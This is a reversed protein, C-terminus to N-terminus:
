ERRKFDRGLRNRAVISDSYLPRSSSSSSHNDVEMLDRSYALSGCILDDRTPIRFARPGSPPTIIQSPAAAAPAQHNGGIKPYVKLLRGDATKDNFTDIVREGGERSAFVMEAVLVPSMRTIKCSTMEGGVPTMASEIDAATTGPAFNQGIVYFPGALGRITMGAGGARSTSVLNLQDEVMRDISEAPRFKRQAATNWKPVAKSRPSRTREDLSPAATGHDNSDHLDHTWEGDVDGAPVNSRRWNYSSVRQQKSIGVRSALRGRPAYKLKPAASQRRGQSFIKDALAENRRRERADSIIKQFDSAAAAAM